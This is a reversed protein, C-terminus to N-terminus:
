LSRVLSNLAQAVEVLRACDVVDPMDSSTHTVTRMLEYMRESTLALSPIGNQVFIMHDGNFWPDGRVLGHYPRFAQEISEVREPSCEYFSFATNGERYGVDDINVALVIGPLQSGYRALYDMQGAASYHDEGNLAVIEVCNAGRYDALMEALLLLVTIGSANDCAGPSDEYADIHAALVVKAMTEPNLRAVVNAASSAIRRADIRLYVKSARERALAEGVAETCYVSPIDLDGDTILPFPYLAGVQEPNASTATVIAAPRHGELLSVIRQHHPPNYFVFNKPMLQESCVEHRMLLIKGACDVNELEEMSSVAVLNGSVECGLSYPSVLVEFARDGCRLGAGESVHDLCDFPSVDVEFPGRRIMEAFFETAERNGKSGTRRNPRMRCLTELYSQARATDTGSRM